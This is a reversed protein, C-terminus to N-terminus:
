DKDRGKGKGKDKGKGKGHGITDSSLKNKKLEHFERSGPKIGLNKAIVGWGRGKNAKYEKLVIDVPKKAIEAVRFCMYADGPRGVSRIITEVQLAPAGFYAGLRGQFDAMNVDAQVDMSTILSNFESDASVQAAVFFLAAAMILAISLIKM